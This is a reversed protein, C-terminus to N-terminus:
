REREVGEGGVERFGASIVTLGPVGAEGCERAVGLVHQKPVTIVAMDVKDPVAGITPYTKLSHISDAKPNVPFVTGTFGYDVLNSVIENGITNRTRSAGIVAVRRPRLLCDLSATMEAGALM